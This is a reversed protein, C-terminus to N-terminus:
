LNLAFIPDLADDNEGVLRSEKSSVWVPHAVLLGAISGTAEVRHGCLLEPLDEHIHGAIFAYVANASKM